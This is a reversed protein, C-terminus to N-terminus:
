LGDPRLFAQLNLTVPRADEPPATRTAHIFPRIAADLTATLEALEDHTLVLGYNSLTAAQRWDEDVRDERAVYERMQRVTEDIAVMRMAASATSGALDAPEADFDVGTVIARWPRERGDADEPQEDRDVLGYRALQRLHYSCNSPSDALAQACQSATHAGTSLLYNLLRYRLPHALASLARADRIVTRHESAPEPEGM